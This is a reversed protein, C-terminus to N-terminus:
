KQYESPHSGQQVAIAVAFVVRLAADALLPQDRRGNKWDVINQLAVGLHDASSSNRWTGDGYKKAGYAYASAMMAVVPGTARILTLIGLINM